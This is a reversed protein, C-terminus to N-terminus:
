KRGFVIKLNESGMPLTICIEGDKFPFQRKFGIKEGASGMSLTLIERKEDYQYRGKLTRKEGEKECFSLAFTEDSKLELKIYSFKDLYDEEGLTAQKCEYEGLHPKAVDKLSSNKWWTACTLTLAALGALVSSKM